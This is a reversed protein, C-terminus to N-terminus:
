AATSGGRGVSRGGDCGGGAGCRGLCGNRVDLHVRVGVRVVLVRVRVGERVRVVGRRGLRRDVLYVESALAVRAVPAHRNPELVVHRDHVLEVGDVEGLAGPGRHTRGEKKSREPGLRRRPRPDYTVTGASERERGRAVGRLDLVVLLDVDRVEVPVDPGVEAGDHLARLARM